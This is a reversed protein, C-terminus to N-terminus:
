HREGKGITVKLGTLLGYAMEPANLRRELNPSGTKSSCPQRGPPFGAETPPKGERGTSRNAPPHSAAPRRASFAGSVTAKVRDGWQAQLHFM